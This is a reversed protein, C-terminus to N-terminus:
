LPSSNAVSGYPMDQLACGTTEHRTENPSQLILVRGELTTFYRLNKFDKVSMLGPEWRDADTVFCRHFFHFSVEQNIRNITGRIICHESAPNIVELHVVRQDINLRCTLM